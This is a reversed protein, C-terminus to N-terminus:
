DVRRLFDLLIARDLPQGTKQFQDYLLSILLAKRVPRLPKKRTSLFKEVLELIQAMAGIDVGGFIYPEHIQDPLSPSELLLAEEAVKPAEGHLLWEVTVGGHDALKKLTEASPMAKGSEYKSIM